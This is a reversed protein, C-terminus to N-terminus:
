WRIVEWATGIMSDLGNLKMLTEELGIHTPPDIGDRAALEDLDLAARSWTNPPLVKWFFLVYEGPYGWDTGEPMELVYVEKIPTELRWDWPTRYPKGAWTHLLLKDGPHKPRDPKFRRITQRCIGAKVADIKPKYTLSLIHTKTRNESVNPCMLLRRLKRLQFLLM